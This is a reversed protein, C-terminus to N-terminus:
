SKASKCELLYADCFLDNVIKRQTMHVVRSKLFLYM